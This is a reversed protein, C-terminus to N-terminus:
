KLVGYNAEFDVICGWIAGGNVSSGVVDVAACDLWPLSMVIPIEPVNEGHRRM